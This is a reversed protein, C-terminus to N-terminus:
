ETVNSKASCVTPISVLVLVGGALLTFLCCGLYCVIVTSLLKNYKNKDDHYRPIYRILGLRFWQYLLSNILNVYVLILAYRGYEDPVLMRTYLVISLFGVAGAFLKAIFYILGHKVM